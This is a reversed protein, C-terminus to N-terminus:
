LLQKEIDTARALFYFGSVFATYFWMKNLLNILPIQEGFMGLFGFALFITSLISLGTFNTFFQFLLLVEHTSWASVGIVVCSSLFIALFQLVQVQLTENTNVHMGFISFDSQILFATILMPTIIIKSLEKLLKVDALKPIGEIM